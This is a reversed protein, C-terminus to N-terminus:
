HALPLLSQSPSLAKGVTAKAPLKIRTVPHAIGPIPTTKLRPLSLPNMLPPEDATASSMGVLEPKGVM